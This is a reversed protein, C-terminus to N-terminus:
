PTVSGEDEERYDRVTVVVYGFARFLWMKPSALLADRFETAKDFYEPREERVSLPSSAKNKRVPIREVLHGHIKSNLWDGARIMLYAASLVLALGGILIFPTLVGLWYDSM